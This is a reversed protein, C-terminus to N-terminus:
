DYESILKVLTSVEVGLSVGLWCVEWSEVGESPSCWKNDKGSEGV